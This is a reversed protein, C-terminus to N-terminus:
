IDLRFKPMYLEFIASHAALHRNSESKGLRINGDTRRKAYHLPSHRTFLESGCVLEGM